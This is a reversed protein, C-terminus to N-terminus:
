TIMLNKARLCWLSMLTPDGLAIKAINYACTLRSLINANIKLNNIENHVLIWKFSLRPM